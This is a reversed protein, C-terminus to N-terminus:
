DLLRTICENIFEKDWLDLSRLQRERLFPVVDEKVSKWDLTEAKEKLHTEVWPKDIHLHKNKWPGVQFLANQLLLLNLEPKKSCYWVLDYWDRGKVYERCLLAHIKGALLSPMDQTVISFPEPFHVVKTEYTSGMPPNTDVELKIKIVQIDSPNRDYIFKIVQGFSQDKIFAKKVIDDAKSKDVFETDFGYGNFELEIENSFQRWEFHPNAEHLIFDMDESFRNLGHVIRLCTGGQFAAYRFFGAQSLASLIIEQAIEKLANLEEGKNSPKYEKIRDEILRLEM